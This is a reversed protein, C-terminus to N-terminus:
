ARCKKEFEKLVEVQPATLHVEKRRESVFAIADDASMNEFRIFYAIGMTPGRGHGNMCHVYVKEGLSIVDHIVTTGVWLNEQTPASLDPTPLWLYRDVGFAGDIREGELSVDTTVGKNLLEEEFHMACCVNSGVFLQDTIQSYAMKVHDQM